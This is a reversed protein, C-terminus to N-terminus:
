RKHELHNLRQDIKDIQKQLSADRAEVEGSSLLKTILQDFRTIDLKTSRLGDVVTGIADTHRRINERDAAASERLAALENRINIVATNFQNDDVRDELKQDMREISRRILERDAAASEKLSNIQSRVLGGLSVFLALMLAGVPALRTWGLGNASAAM